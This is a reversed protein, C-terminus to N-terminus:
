RHCSGLIRRRMPSHAPNIAVLEAFSEYKVPTEIDNFYDKIDTEAQSLYKADIYVYNKLCLKAGSIKEYTRIHESTRRLLDETLGYKIIVRDDPISEPLGL